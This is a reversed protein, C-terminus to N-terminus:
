GASRPRGRAGRVGRRDDTRARARRQEDHAALVARAPRARRRHHRVRPQKRRQPRSSVRTPCAELPTAGVRQLAAPVAEGDDTAVLVLVTHAATAAAAALTALTALKRKNEAAVVTRVREVRM